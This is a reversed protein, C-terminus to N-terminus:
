LSHFLDIFQKAIREPSRESVFKKAATKADSYRKGKNFISLLQTKLEDRDSYKIIEKQFPWIYDSIRPALIPCGAGLGQFVTSSLIGKEQPSASIKHLIIADAAFLYDDFLSHPFFEERRIMTQPYREEINRNTLILFLVDKLDPAPLEPLYPLYSRRCFVIVIKQKLPLGLKERAEDRNGKRLPFCPFPIYHAIDGYIAKLFKEQRTDFYVVADWDFNYFATDSSPATDHVVQITKDKRKIVPFIQALKEKPLVGVDEVVFFDYNASLIPRPDLFNTGTSIGFCRTVYDEDKGTIEEGHFDDPLFTFVQLEHGM